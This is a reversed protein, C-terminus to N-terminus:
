IRDKGGEINTINNVSGFGIVEDEGCDINTVGNTLFPNQIENLGGDIVTLITDNVPQQNDLYKIGNIYAVNSETVTIDSTNMVIVNELNAQIVVRDSNVINVRNVGSGINNGDGVITIRQASPAVLNNSGTVQHTNTLNVYNGGQAIREGRTTAFDARTAGLDLLTYAALGTNFEQGTGFGLTNGTNSGYGSEFSTGDLYKLFQVKTTEPAFPNYGDVKYLRFYHNDIFYLKRFDLNFIDVPNLKVNCTILRSDKSTIAKIYDYYYKYFLTNPTLALPTTLVSTFNTGGSHGEWYYSTGANGFELSNTPTFMDDYMNFSPINRTTVTKYAGITYIHEWVDDRTEKGNYFLIRRKPKYPAWDAEIQSPLAPSYSFRNELMYSGDNISPNWVPTPSFGVQVTSKDNQFDSDVTFKYSGFPEGQKSYYDLFNQNIFDNDPTYQFVYEKADLSPLPEILLDYNYDLKQSWDVVNTDGTLYFDNRPEIILNRQNTPDVNIYLNFMKVLDLILDTSRCHIITANMDMLDGEQLPASVADGKFYPYAGVTEYSNLNIGNIILRVQGGQNLKTNEDYDNSWDFGQAPRWYTPLFDYYVGENYPPGVQLYNYFTGIRMIYDGINFSSFDLPNDIIQFQEYLNPLEFTYDVGTWTAIYGDYGLFENIAGTYVLTRHGIYPTNVPVQSIIDVPALITAPQFFMGRIPIREGNAGRWSNEADLTTWANLNVTYQPTWQCMILIQEGQQVTINSAKIKRHYSSYPIGSSSTYAAYTTASTDIYTGGTLKFEDTILLETSADIRVRLITLKVTLGVNIFVPNSPSPTTGGFGQVNSYETTFSPEAEFNYVGSKFCYWTSTTTNYGGFDDNNGLTPFKIIQTASEVENEAEYTLIPFYSAGTGSISFMQFNRRDLQAQTPYIVTKDTPIVLKKFLNSDFFNSSYSYGVSNFIKDVYEKAYLAPLIENVAFSPAPINITNSGNVISTRFANGLGNYALYYVYGEGKPNNGSFNNYRAGNKLIGVQPSNFTPGWSYLQEDKTLDHSWEGFNLDAVYQDGLLVFFDDITSYLTVEYFVQKNKWIIEDLKLYGEFQLISNKFLQIDLKKLPNFRKSLAEIEFINELIHNNNKTGPITITKSHYNVKRTPSTIDDLQYILPFDYDEDLDFRAYAGTSVYKKISIYKLAFYGWQDAYGKVTLKGSETCTVVGSVLGSTNTSSISNTTTDATGLIVTTVVGFIPDNTSWGEVFYEIIYQEGAETQIFPIDLAPNGSYVIQSTAGESTTFILQYGGGNLHIGMRTDSDTGSGFEEWDGVRTFSNPGGGFYTDPYLEVGLGIPNKLRLEVNIM